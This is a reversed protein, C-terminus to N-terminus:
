RRACSGALALTVRAREAILNAVAHADVGDTDVILADPAPRLPAVARTADVRDRRRLDNLVEDLTPAEGRRRLEEHRRRARERESANLFVKLGADPVVVTGIDRGVMVVPGGAAIRRQLPLLAERVAPHASVQSVRAEVESSRLAWTVDEGDLFVTSLRDDGGAPEIRIDMTGALDALAVEDAPDVRARLSALALGRYLLGTDFLLAGLQAALLRAVTSKGAAAPGDIAIVRRFDASGPVIM